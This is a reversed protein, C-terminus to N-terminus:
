HDSQRRLSCRCLLQSTIVTYEAGEKAGGPGPTWGFNTIPVSMTTGTPTRMVVFPAYGTLPGSIVWEGDFKYWRFPTSLDQYEPALRLQQDQSPARLHSM